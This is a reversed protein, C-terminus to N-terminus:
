SARAGRFRMVLEPRILRRIRNQRAILEDATDASLTVTLLMSALDSTTPVLDGLRYDLRIDTVYPLQSAEAMGRVGALVGPPGENAIFVLGLVRDLGLGADVIRPRRGLRAAITDAFPDAPGAQRWAEAIHAGPLRAGLEIFVPGSCGLKVEIHCPGIEVEYADLIAFAFRELIGRVPDQLDIQRANWYPQDYDLATPLDKRWIDLLTHRGGFSFTNIAYEDGRVYEEVLWETIPHGFLDADAASAVRSLDASSTVIFVNHAGAGGPAKVMVPGRTRAAIAAVGAKRDAIRYGPQPVGRTQGWERMAIKDRRARASRVPNHPLGLGAAVQDAVVVGPEAAAVAARVRLGRETLERLVAAASTAHIAPEVHYRAAPAAGFAALRVASLTHVPVPCLGLSEAAAVFPVGSHVPDVIAVCTRAIANRVAAGTETLPGAPATV